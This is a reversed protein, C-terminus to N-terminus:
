ELERAHHLLFYEAQKRDARIEEAMKIAADSAMETMSDSEWQRREQGDGDTATRNM